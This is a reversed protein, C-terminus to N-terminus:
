GSSSLLTVRWASAGGESWDGSLGSLDLGWTVKRTVANGANANLVLVPNWGDYVFLLDSSESWGGNYTLVTKRVRRGMYDYVFAMMTDGTAPSAAPEV